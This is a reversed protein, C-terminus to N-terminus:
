HLMSSDGGGDVVLLDIEDSHKKFYRVLVDQMASYDDKFATKFLLQSSKHFDVFQVLAAVSKQTAIYSTDIAMIVTPEKSLALVQQMTKAEYNSQKSHWIVDLNNNALDVMKKKAGRKPFVIKVKKAFMQVFLAELNSKDSLDFPLLILKPLPHTLYHQCLFQRILQEKNSLTQFFHKRLGTLKYNKFTLEVILAKTAVVRLSFVDFNKIKTYAVFQKSFLEDLYQIMNFLEQAKEFELTKNYANIKDKLEKKVAKCDGKLFRKTQEVVADYEKQTCLNVCPALCRKLEYLICPRKRSNLEKDSCERLPFLYQLFKLTKRAMKSSPYPGFSEENMARKLVLTKWAGTTFHISLFRKDDKLKINYAPMHDHILNNELLLAERENTVVITDIKRVKNLLAASKEGCMKAYQKLRKKINKAKGVYLVNDLADKMIYVGCEAPYSEFFINKVKTM